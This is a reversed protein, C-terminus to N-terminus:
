VGSSNGEESDALLYAGERRGLKFTFAAGSRLGEDRGDRQTGEGLTGLRFLSRNSRCGANMGAMCLLGEIEVALLAQPPVASARECARVSVCVM